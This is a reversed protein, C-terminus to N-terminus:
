DFYIVLKLVGGFDCSLVRISKLGPLFTSDYTKVRASDMKSPKLGGRPGRSGKRKFLGSLIAMDQGNKILDRFGKSQLKTSRIHNDM